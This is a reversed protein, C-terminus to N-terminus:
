GKEGLFAEVLKKPAIEQWHRLLLKRVVEPRAASLRVLVSPWNRYHDTIYFVRPDAEMLMDREDFGVGKVVLSEGDEKLRTLLRGRVKLALTGYSTGDEVGPWALAMARVDEFTM